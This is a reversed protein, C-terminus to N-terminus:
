GGTTDLNIDAEPLNDLTYRITEIWPLADLDGLDGWAVDNSDFTVRQSFHYVRFYRSKEIKFLEDGDYAMCLATSGKSWGVLAQILFEGYAVSLADAEQGRRDSNELTLMVDIRRTLRQQTGTQESEDSPWREGYNDGQLVVLNPVEVRTWDETKDYSAAGYIRVGLEPFLTSALERLRAIVDSPTVLDLSTLSM